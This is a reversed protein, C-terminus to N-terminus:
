KRIGPCWLTRPEESASWKKFNESLLFWSGTGAERKKAVDNHVIRYDTLCLWEAIDKHKDDSTNLDALASRFSHTMTVQTQVFSLILMVSRRSCLKWM